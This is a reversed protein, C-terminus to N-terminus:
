YTYEIGTIEAKWYPFSGEPLEWSVEAEVPIRIGNRLEYKHFHGAWPTLKYNGNVERYRGPTYAGTIEGAENFLFDLSITTNSDTITAKATYDDIESWMVGQSPLLATPFWVAEALYRQLAGENLESKDHENMITILSLVEGQMSGQGELYADRVRVTMFPAITIRAAWIFGPPAGSFHQVATMKAWQENSPSTRFGGEQTLMASRVVPQGENLVLRFYREVPKPLGALEKFDVVSEVSDVHPTKLRKVLNSTDRTWRIAGIGVAM